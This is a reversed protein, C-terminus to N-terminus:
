WIDFKCYLRLFDLNCMNYKMCKKINKKNSSTSTLTLPNKKKKFNKTQSFCFLYPKIQLPHEKKNGKVQRNQEFLVM